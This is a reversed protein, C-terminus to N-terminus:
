PTGPPLLAAIRDAISDLVARRRESFFPALARLDGVDAHTFGAPHEYLAVAAFAHAAYGFGDLSPHVNLFGAEVIQRDRTAIWKAREEPSWAAWTDSALAPAVPTM